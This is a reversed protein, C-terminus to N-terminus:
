GASGIRGKHILHVLAIFSAEPYKSVQPRLADHM